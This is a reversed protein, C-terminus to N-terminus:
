IRTENKQEYKNDLIDDLTSEVWSEVQATVEKTNIDTGDIPDGIVVTVLGPKKLFKGGNVVWFKGANHSVPVITAGSAKAIDAGSRAYKVKEGIAVRTGEPFLILNVGESLRAVGQNKVEKLAERPNSRDIAIPRLAALGWGFFPIRLLEKKLVTSSPWFLGQLFFTEWASQHKSLVVVPGQINALKERGIIQYRIGCTVKAWWIVIHTWSIILRHRQLPPLLYMPVSLAGYVTTFVTYGIAFLASRIYIM